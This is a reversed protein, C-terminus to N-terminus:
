SPTDPLDIVFFIFDRAKENKQQFTNLVRMQENYVLQSAFFPLIFVYVFVKEVVFFTDLIYTDINV